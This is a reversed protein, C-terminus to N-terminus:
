AAAMDNIHAALLQTHLPREHPFLADHQAAAAYIQRAKLKDRNDRAAHLEAILAARTQPNLPKTM